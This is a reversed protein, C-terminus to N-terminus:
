KGDIKCEDDPTLNARERMALSSANEERSGTRPKLLADTEMALVGTAVGQKLLHTVLELASQYQVIAFSADGSM